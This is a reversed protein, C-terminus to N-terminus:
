RSMVPPSLEPPSPPASLPVALGQGELMEENVAAAYALPLEADDLYFDDQAQQGMTFPGPLTVKVPRDSHRRVLAVM